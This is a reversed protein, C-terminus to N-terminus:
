DRDSTPCRHTTVYQSFVLSAIVLNTKAEHLADKLCKIKDEFRLSKLSMCLSKITSRKTIKLRDLLEFFGDSLRMCEENAEVLKVKSLPLGVPDGSAAIVASLEVNLEKLSKLVGRLREHEALAGEAASRYEATKSLINAGYEVIQLVNCALPLASLPEM